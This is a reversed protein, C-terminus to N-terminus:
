SIVELNGLKRKAQELSYFITKGIMKKNVIQLNWGLVLSNAHFGYKDVYGEMLVDEDLCWAKRRYLNKM